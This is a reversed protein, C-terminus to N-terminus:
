FLWKYESKPLLEIKFYVDDSCNPDYSLNLTRGDIVYRLEIKEKLKPASIEQLNITQSAKKEKGEPNVVICELSKKKAVLAVYCNDGYEEDSLLKSM